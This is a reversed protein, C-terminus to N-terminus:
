SGGFNVKNFILISVMDGWGGVGVKCNYNDYGGIRIGERKIRAKKLM